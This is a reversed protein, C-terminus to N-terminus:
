AEKILVVRVILFDFILAYSGDDGDPVYEVGVNLGLIPDIMLM